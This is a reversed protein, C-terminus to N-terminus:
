DKNNADLWVQDHKNWETENSCMRVGVNCKQFCKGNTQAVTQWKGATQSKM